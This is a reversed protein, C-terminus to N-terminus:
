RKGNDKIIGVNVNKGTMLFKFHGGMGTLKHIVLIHDGEDLEMTDAPVIPEGDIYITAFGDWTNQTELSLTAQPLAQLFVVYCVVMRHPLKDSLGKNLKRQELRKGLFDEEEPAALWKAFADASAEAAKEGVYPGVMYINSLKGKLPQWDFDRVPEVWDAVFKRDGDSLDALKLKFEKGNHKGGKVKVTVEDDAKEIMVARIAQGEKNTWTRVEAHAVSVILLSILPLLLSVIKM